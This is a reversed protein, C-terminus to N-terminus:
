AVLLPIGDADIRRRAMAAYEPKLEILTAKRGLRQAALGTTGAGGFPDIVTGGDPCGAKICRQALELPMVAFHAGDYGGPSLRWVSRQADDGLASRDFHYRTSKALLFLQEHAKTVRDKVTEPKGHTKEWIIEQRLFWGAGRLALAVMWPIGFVDKEKLGNARISMRVGGKAAREAWVDDTFGNLSPEHSTTRVKTRNNYSDGINLWLTGEAKLVRRVERFVCVLEAIYEDPTVELGLQGEVGYDRLGYYPPSTVCCDVSEDEIQRLRTRCDGIM